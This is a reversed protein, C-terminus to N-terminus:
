LRCILLEREYVMEPPLRDHLLLFVEEHSIVERKWTTRDVAQLAAFSSKASSSATGSSTTTSPCGDSPRRRGECAAECAIRRGVEARAHKRRLRAVPIQRRRGQPVLQRPLHAADSSLERQMRLWHRFYDGMHYGCFPLMAMPDRRVAGVERRCRRDARSGMTAGIYVGSSWNFAQFVLPMTTPRRGGFLIASIPVGDPSEWAASRHHPVALRARHLPRQSPRRAQRDKGIQGTDLCRRALRPVRDAPPADTMGEWWVGTPNVTRADPGRQHLHHQRAPDGHCQPQDERQHRARRRLLRSRSQHRAAPGHADPKIWAIDDGVTWVKWGM